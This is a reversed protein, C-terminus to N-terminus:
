SKACIAERYMKLAQRQIFGMPAGTAKSQEALWLADEESFLTVIRTQLGQNRTDVEIKKTM